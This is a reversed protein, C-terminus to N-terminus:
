KVPDDPKVADCQYAPKLSLLSFDKSVSKAKWSGLLFSMVGTQTLQLNYM